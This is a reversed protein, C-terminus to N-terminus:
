ALPMFRRDNLLKRRIVVGSRQQDFGERATTRWASLDTLNDIPFPGGSRKEEEFLLMVM